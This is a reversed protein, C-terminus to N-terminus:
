NLGAIMALLSTMSWPCCSIGDTDTFSRMRVISSRCSIEETPVFFIKVFFSAIVGREPAVKLLTSSVLDFSESM